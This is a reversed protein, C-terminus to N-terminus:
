SSKSREEDITPEVNVKIPLGYAVCVVVFSRNRVIIQRNRDIKQLNRRLFDMEEALLRVDETEEM